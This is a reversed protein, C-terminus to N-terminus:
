TILASAVGISGNRGDDWRNGVYLGDEDFYGVGVHGGDASVSSTRVYKGHLLYTGRVKYYATVAYSVQSANPVHEVETILSQQEKWTKSFSNPVPEKRIALWEGAVKDDKAFMQEKEAYWGEANSCFLKNDLDRIGLLNMETPPGAILVYGNTRYWQLINENPLTEVFQKLQDKTYSVSYVNAVEEPSIFDDGLILTALEYGKPVDDGRAIAVARVMRGKNEVLGQLLDPSGGQRGFEAVFETVQGLSFDGPKSQATRTKM